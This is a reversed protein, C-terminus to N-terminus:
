CPEDHRVDLPLCPAVRRHRHQRDVASRRLGIHHEHGRVARDETPGSTARGIMLHHAQLRRHLVESGGHGLRGGLGAHDQGGVLRQAADPAVAQGSHVEGDVFHVQALRQRAAPQLLSTPRTLSVNAMKRAPTRPPQPTATTHPVPSLQTPSPGSPVM